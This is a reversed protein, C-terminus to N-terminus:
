NKTEEKDQVKDQVFLAKIPSVAQPMSSQELRSMEAFFQTDSVEQQPSAVTPHTLPVPGSRFFALGGVIVLVAAASAAFGKQSFLSHWWLPPKQDMRAYISRRQAALFDNSVAPPEVIAVRQMTLRDWRASCDACSGLHSEAAAEANSIGYLKDLLQDSTWHQQKM